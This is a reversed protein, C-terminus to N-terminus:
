GAPAANPPVTVGQGLHSQVSPQVARRRRSWLLLVVVAGVGLAAVTSGAVRLLRLSFGSCADTFFASRSQSAGSQRHIRGPEFAVDDVTIVVPDHLETEVSFRWIAPRPELILASDEVWTRSPLAGLAV